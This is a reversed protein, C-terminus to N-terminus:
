LNQTIRDFILFKALIHCQRDYISCASQTFDIWVGGHFYIPGAHQDRYLVIHSQM